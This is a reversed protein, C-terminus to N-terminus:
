PIADDVSIGAEPKGTEGCVPNTREPYHRAEVIGFHPAVGAIGSYEM